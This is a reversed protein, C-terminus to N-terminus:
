SGGRSVHTYYAQAARLAADATHYPGATTGDRRTFRWPGDEVTDFVAHAALGTVAAALRKRLDEVAAHSREFAETKM